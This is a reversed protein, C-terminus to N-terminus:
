EGGSLIAVGSSGPTKWRVVEDFTVNKHEQVRDRFEDDLDDKMCAELDTVSLPSMTNDLDFSFEVRRALESHTFGQNLDPFDDNQFSFDSESRTLFLKTVARDTTVNRYFGHTMAYDYISEDPHVFKCTRPHDKHRNCRDGYRCLAPRIEDITHAFRCKGGVALCGGEGTVSRCFVTKEFSKAVPRCFDGVTMNRTDNRIM